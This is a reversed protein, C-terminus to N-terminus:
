GWPVDVIYRARILSNLIFTFIVAGMGMGRSSMPGYFVDFFADKHAANAYVFLIELWATQFGFAFGLMM